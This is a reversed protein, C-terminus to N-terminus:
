KLLLVADSVKAQLLNKSCLNHDNRATDFLQQFNKVKSESEEWKRKYNNIDLEMEKIKQRLM